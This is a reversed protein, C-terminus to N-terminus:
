SPERPPPVGTKVVVVGNGAGTGYKVMGVRGSLIQIYDINDAPISELTSMDHMQTGDIVLLVQPDLVFTSVGRHTVRVDSGQRVYQFNLNTAAWRLAQWGDRAGSQAIEDRTIIPGDRERPAPSDKVRATACGAILTLTLLSVAARDGALGPSLAWTM